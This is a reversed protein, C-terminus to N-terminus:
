SKVHIIEVNPLGVPRLGADNALRGFAESEIMDMYPMEPFELGARHVSAHVLLMTGGVASLPVKDLYRLDHMHRRHWYEAPPQFLGGVMYKYYESDAPKGTEFHANLDYSPGGPELVCDPTVIKEGTALLTRLVHTPFDCIDVDLWLVWDDDDRLGDRILVNRAGAIAGRRKLQLKPKWRRKREIATGSDHGLIDIGRFEGRRRDRLDDLLARSGDISDGECYVIRLKDTPYDLAAILDLNRTIFPAGDRVPVFVAVNPPDAPNFAPLPSLLMDRDIRALVTQPDPTRPSAVGARWKRWHGKLRSWRTQAHHEFWTGAWNHRSLRLAAHDGTVPDNANEGDNGAPAFLHCSNLSLDSQAPWSLTAGSFMLPGTSSLVDKSAAHRCTWAMDIVHKWFPHGAPSAMTGNFFLRDLGLALAPGWHQRPEECIIVRNEGAIPDLPALCDTDMDAYLGGFRHLLMYRGLDARQVPHPYSRYLDLFDPYEAAVFDDLDDDTWLRYSWDPNFDKWSEPSGADSTYIPSHWTQHILKPIM